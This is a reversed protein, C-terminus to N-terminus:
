SSYENKYLTRQNRSVTPLYWLNYFLKPLIYLETVTTEM